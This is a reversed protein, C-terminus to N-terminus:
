CVLTIKSSHNSCFSLLLLWRCQKRLTATAADSNTPTGCGAGFVPDPRPEGRQVCRPHRHMRMASDAGVATGRRASLPSLSEAHRRGVARSLGRGLEIRYRCLNIARPM